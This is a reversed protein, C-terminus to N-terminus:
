PRQAASIQEALRVTLRSLAAAYAEASLAPLPENLTLRTLAPTRALDIESVWWVVSARVSHTEQQADLEDFRIHLTRTPAAPSQSCPAECVALQHSLARTLQRTLGVEIREAWRVQPWESLTAPGERFRVRNTQLYEPVEIRAVAWDPHLTRMTRHNAADAPLPLSLLTIGPASQRACGSLAILGSVLTIVSWRTLTQCMM